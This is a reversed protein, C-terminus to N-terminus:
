DWDGIINIEMMSGCEPCRVYRDISDSMCEKFGTVVSTHGNCDFCRHDYHELMQYHKDLENLSIYEYGKGTFGTSWPIKRDLKTSDFGEKPVYLTLDQVNMLKGCNNCQVVIDECSIAGNPFAEFFEKGQAGFRGSKMKKVTECYVKPYLM